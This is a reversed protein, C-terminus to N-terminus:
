QPVSKLKKELSLIIMPKALGGCGLVLCLCRPEVFISINNNEIENPFAKFFNLLFFNNAKCPWWVWPGSMSLLAGSLHFYHKWNWQPANIIKKLSFFEVILSRVVLSWFLLFTKFKLPAILFSIWSLEEGCFFFIGNDQIWCLQLQCYYCPQQLQQPHPPPIPPSYSALASTLKSSLAILSSGGRMVGGMGMSSRGAKRIGGGGVTRGHHQLRYCHKHERKM